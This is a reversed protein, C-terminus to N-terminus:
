ASARRALRMGPRHADQALIAPARVCRPYRFAHDDRWAGAFRPSSSCAQAPRPLPPYAYVTNTLAEIPTERLEGPM